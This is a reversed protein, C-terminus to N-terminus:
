SIIDLYTKTADIDKSNYNHSSYRNLVISGEVTEYTWKNANWKLQVINSQTMQITTVIRRDLQEFSDSGDINSLVYFERPSYPSTVIYLDCAIAKDAYRAPAMIGEDLGFPNTLRLLDSFMLVRPRLEDLIITHEGNYTQFYDRSSGAVFFPRNQSKAYKKALTSKGTGAEGFIWIVRIMRGDAKAQKRWEEAENKIRLANVRAIQPAYKGYLSGPLEREIDTIKVTGNKLGDLLENIRFRKKTKEINTEFKSILTEFDFNAKVESINYQHKGKANETKHILYAFGNDARGDWKSLYQPKEKLTKAVSNISRANGFCLMAHVHKEAPTGDESFDKDHVIVAFKDPSLRDNIVDFINDETIGFPLHSVQQELMMNKVRLSNIKAKM